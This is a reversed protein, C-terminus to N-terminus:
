IQFSGTEEVWSPNQLTSIEITSQVNPGAYKECQDVISITRQVENIEANLQTKGGFIGWGWVKSIKGADLTFDDPLKISVQCGEQVPVSVSFPM